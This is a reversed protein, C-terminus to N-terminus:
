TLEERAHNRCLAKTLNSLALQAVGRLPADPGLKSNHLALPSPSRWRERVAQVLLGGPDAPWAIVLLEPNLVCSLNHLIIRLTDAFADFAQQASPSELVVYGDRLFAQSAQLLHRELPGPEGLTMGTEPLDPLLSYGIEGAASNAGRYLQGHIVLGAGIGSGIAVYLVQQHTAGAGYHLEALALANVDNELVVELGFIEHLTEALPYDDWGLAPALHVHGNHPDVVGPVALSLAAVTTESLTELIDRLWNVLGEEMAVSVVPGEFINLVQGRLDILAARAHIGSLDVSLVHCANPNFRLLRAPRGGSSFDQGVRIILNDAAFEQLITTVTPVSLGTARALAARSLDKGSTLARYVMHRNAERVKDNQLPLDNSM